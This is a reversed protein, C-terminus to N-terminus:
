SAMVVRHLRSSEETWPRAALIWAVRSKTKARNGGVELSLRSLTWNVEVLEDAIIPNDEEGM